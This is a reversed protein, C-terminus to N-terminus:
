RSRGRGGGHGGSRGGGRGGGHGGGHSGGSSSSINVSTTYERVFQDTQRTIRTRSQDIYNAASIPARKKYGRVVSSVVIGTVVAAVVLGIFSGGLIVEFNELFENHMLSATTSSGGYREVVSCFNKCAAYFGSSDLGDYVKNFMATIHDDYKNRGMGSTSICDAFGDGDYQPNGHKNLMMLVVFSSGYGFASDGFADAYSMDSMGNLDRTIVIGVNCKANNAATQMIKRLESEQSATLCDDYDALAATFEVSDAFSNTGFFMTLLLMIPLIIVFRKIKHM